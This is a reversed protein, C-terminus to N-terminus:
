ISVKTAFLPSYVGVLSLVNFKKIVNKYLSLFKEKILKRNDFKDYFTKFCLILVNDKNNIHKTNTKHQQTM